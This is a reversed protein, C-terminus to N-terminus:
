APIPEPPLRPHRSTGFAQGIRVCRRFIVRVLLRRGDPRRSFPAGHGGLCGGGFEGGSCGNECRDDVGGAALDVVGGGALDDSAGPFATRGVDIRSHGGRALSLRRPGRAGGLLAALKQALGGVRDFGGGLRQGLQERAFLAFGEVPGVGAELDTGARGPQARVRGELEFGFNEDIVTLGVSLEV